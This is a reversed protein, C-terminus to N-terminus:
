RGTTSSRRWGPEHISRTPRPHRGGRFLFAYAYVVVAFYYSKARTREAHLYSLEALAFLRDEDLETGLTAHLVALAATPDSEFRDRLNFRQLVQDSSGNPVGSSLAGATVQQQFSRPTLPYVGVPPACASVLTLGAGLLM